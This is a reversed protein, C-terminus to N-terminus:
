VSHPEAKRAAMVVVASTPGLYAGIHLSWCLLYRTARDPDLVGSADLRVQFPDLSLLVIAALLSAPVTALTALGFFRQWRVRRGTARLWVFVGACLAGVPLGGYFGVLAASGRLSAGESVGKGLVFYEPSVSVTIQDFGAGLLGFCAAGLLMTSYSRLRSDPPM